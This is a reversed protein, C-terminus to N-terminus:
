VCLLASYNNALSNHGHWVQLIIRFWESFLKYKEWHTALTSLLQVATSLSPTATFERAAFALPPGMVNKIYDRLTIRLFCLLEERAADRTANSISDSLENEMKAGVLRQIALVQWKFEAETAALQPTRSVTWLKQTVTKGCWGMIRLMPAPAFFSNM